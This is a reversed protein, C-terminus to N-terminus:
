CHMEAGLRKIVTFILICNTRQIRKFINTYRAARPRLRPVHSRSKCCEFSKTAASPVSNGSWPDFGPAGAQPAHLTLRELPVTSTETTYLAQFHKAFWLWKLGSPFLLLFEPFLLAYKCVCAHTNTSETMDRQSGTSQLGWWAGRDTPNELCCYQLPNGHGEGPSRDRGLSWVWMEQIEQM